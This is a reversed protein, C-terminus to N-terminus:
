ASGARQEVLVVAVPQQQGLGILPRLVHALIEAVAVFAVHRIVEREHRAHVHAIACSSRCGIVSIM